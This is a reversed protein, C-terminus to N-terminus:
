LLGKHACNARRVGISLPHRRARRVVDRYITLSGKGDPGKGDPNVLSMVPVAIIYLGRRAISRQWRRIRSIPGSKDRRCELINRPM